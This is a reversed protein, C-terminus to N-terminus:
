DEDDEEPEDEEDEFTSLADNDAMMDKNIEDQTDQKNINPVIITGINKIWPYKSIAVKASEENPAAIISATPISPNKLENEDSNQMDSMIICADPSMKKMQEFAPVFLTGGGGALRLIENQHSNFYSYMATVRTDFELIKVVSLGKIKDIALMFKTFEEAGISGSTDLLIVVRLDLINKRELLTLDKLNLDKKGQVDYLFSKVDPAKLTEATTTM